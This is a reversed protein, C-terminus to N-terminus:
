IPLSMAPLGALNVPITYIDSLYMKLPDDTKEGLKWAVSPSVPGVVV